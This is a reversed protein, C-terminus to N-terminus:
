PKPSSCGQESWFLTQDEPVPEWAESKESEYMPWIHQRAFAIVAADGTARAKDLLALIRQANGSANLEGFMGM